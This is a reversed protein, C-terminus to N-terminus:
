NGTLAEKRVVQDPASSPIPVKSTSTWPKSGYVAEGNVKLWKGADLLNRISEKPIKGNGMPGVNLLFNGGKSTNELLWYLTELPSKWDDDYSKYGWSHNTTAIGEWTNESAEAPIKNDGPTGIDGMDNGIRQNVLIEPNATYVTKYFEFSHHPPMYLPTDFWLESLDYNDLLERVQPLSKNNIYDDFKVPAPDWANVFNEWKPNESPGYDKMGADGGDAWDVSHSYYVGFDIGGRKCAQELERIIDRKFPTAQVVNYDSAKTDFLAFGDHHKSTIVMYNMGAAKAIAVWEDADFEVPNFSQALKAYEARPIEKNRMIWEAVKPGIGNEEMKQGEWIGGLQSYIGWHIFMGYKNENFRERGRQKADSANMKTWQERMEAPVEADAYIQASGDISLALSILVVGFISKM